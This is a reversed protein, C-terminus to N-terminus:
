KRIRFGTYFDPTLFFFFFLSYKLCFPTYKIHVLKALFVNCGIALLFFDNSIKHGALSFLVIIFSFDAVADLLPKRTSKMSSM